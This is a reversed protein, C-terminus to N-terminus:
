PPKTLPSSPMQRSWFKWYMISTSHQSARADALQQHSGWGSPPTSLRLANKSVETMLPTPRFQRGQQASLLWRDQFNCKM